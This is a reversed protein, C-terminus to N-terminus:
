LGKEWHEGVTNKRMEEFSQTYEYVKLTQESKLEEEHWNWENFWYAKPVNNTRCDNSCHTSTQYCLWYIKWIQPAPGRNKLCFILVGSSIIMVTSCMRGEQRQSCDMLSRPSSAIQFNYRLWLHVVNERWQLICFMSKEFYQRKM